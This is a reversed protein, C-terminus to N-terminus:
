EGDDDEDSSSEPVSFFDGAAINRSSVVASTGDELEVVECNPNRSRHLECDPMDIETFVVTGREIDNTAYLGDLNKMGGQVAEKSTLAKLRFDRAYSVSPFRQPPIITRHFWLNTNVVLVDGEKVDLRLSRNEMSVDVTPSQRCIKSIVEETPRLFWQKVGSLQYHWTGDHSICDTHEPRGDLDDGDVPNRGFFIWLANEYSWKTGVLEKVPLRDTTEKYAKKDNQILFSCYAQLQTLEPRLIEAPPISAGGNTEVTWSEKDEAALSEFIAGIDKWVLQGKQPM